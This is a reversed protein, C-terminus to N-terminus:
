VISELSKVYGQAIRHDKANPFGVHKVYLFGELPNDIDFETVEGDSIVQQEATHVYGQNLLPVLPVPDAENIYLQLNDRLEYSNYFDIDGVRPGGFGVVSIEKTHLFAKEAQLKAALLTALAGGLSHGTVKLKKLSPSDLSDIAQEAESYINKVISLFGRHVRGGFARVKDVDLNKIWDQFDDTGRLAVVLTNGTTAAFGFDGVEADEDGFTVPSGLDIKKYATSQEPKKSYSAHCAHALFLANKTQKNGLKLKAM